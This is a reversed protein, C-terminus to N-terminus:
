DLNEKAVFGQVGKQPGDIVEVQAGEADSSIVRVPTHNDLDKTMFSEGLGGLMASPGGAAKMQKVKEFTAEDPYIKVTHDSGTAVLKHSCGAVAMAALVVLGLLVARRM